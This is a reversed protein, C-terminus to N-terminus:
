EKDRLRDRNAYLLAAVLAASGVGVGVGLALPWPNDSKNEKGAAARARKATRAERVIENEETV